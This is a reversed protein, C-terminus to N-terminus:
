SDKLEVNELDESEDFERIINELGKQIAFVGMRKFYKSLESYTLSIDIKTIKARGENSRIHEIIEDFSDGAEEKNVLYVTIDTENDYPIQSLSEEYLKFAIPFYKSEINFDKCLQHLMPGDHGDFSIHGSYDGYQVSAEDKFLDM